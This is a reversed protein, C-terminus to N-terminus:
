SFRFYSSLFDELVLLGMFWNLIVDQIIHYVGFFAISKQLHSFTHVVSHCFREDQATYFTRFPHM